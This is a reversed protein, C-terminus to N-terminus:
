CPPLSVPRRGNGNTRHMCWLSMYCRTAYSLQMPQLSKSLNITGHISLGRISRQRSREGWIGGWILANTGKDPHHKLALKRHAKKIEDQTSDKSVGLIDYYRRVAHAM